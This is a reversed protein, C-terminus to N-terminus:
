IIYKNKRFRTIDKKWSSDCFCTYLKFDFYWVFGFCQLWYLLILVVFNGMVPLLFLVDAMVIVIFFSLRSSPTWWLRVLCGLTELPFPGGGQPLWVERCTPHFQFCLVQPLEESHPPSKMGPTGQSVWFALRKLGQVDFFILQILNTCMSIDWCKRTTSIRSLNDVKYSGIGEWVRETRFQRKFGRVGGVERDSVREMFAMWTYLWHLRWSAGALGQGQSRKPVNTQLAWWGTREREMNSDQGMTRSARNTANRIEHCATYRPLEWGWECFSLNSQHRCGSPQPGKPFANAAGCVGQCRDM